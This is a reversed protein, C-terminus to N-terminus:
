NKKKARRLEPFEEELRRIARETDEIQKCINKKQVELDKNKNRLEQNEKKLKEVECTLKYEKETM